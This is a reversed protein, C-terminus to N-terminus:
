SRRIDRQLIPRGPPPGCTSTSGDWTGGVNLCDQMISTRRQQWILLGALVTLIGAAIVWRNM